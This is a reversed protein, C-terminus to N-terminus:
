FKDDLLLEPPNEFRHKENIMQTYLETTVSSSHRLVRQADIISGGYEIIM